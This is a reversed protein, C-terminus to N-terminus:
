VILCQCDCDTITRDEILNLDKWNDISVIIPNDDFTVKKDRKINENESLKYIVKKTSQKGFNDQHEKNIDDDFNKEITNFKSNDEDIDINKDKSTIM